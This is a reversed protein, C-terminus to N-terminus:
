RCRLTWSSRTSARPPDGDGGGGADINQSFSWGEFGGPIVHRSM